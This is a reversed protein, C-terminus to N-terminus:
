AGRACAPKAPRDRALLPPRALGGESLGEAKAARAAGAASADRESKIRPSDLKALPDSPFRSRVLERLAADLSSRDWGTESRLAHEWGAGRACRNLWRAVAGPHREEIMGIVARSELYALLARKGRLGGFGQVLSPLPIWTETRLADLLQRWESRSLRPRGRAIEEERDAIGENLFFPAHGGLADEFLAHAYEHILLALLERRPRRVSVVHIAGDYFGVTAFGFRHRYAELYH